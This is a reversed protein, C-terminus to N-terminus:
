CPAPPDGSLKGLGYTHTLRQYEEIALSGEGIIM